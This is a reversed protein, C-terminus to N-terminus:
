GKAPDSRSTSSSTRTSSRSGTKVAAVADIGVQAVPGSLPYIVGIVVEQAALTQGLPVLATALFAWLSVVFRRTM